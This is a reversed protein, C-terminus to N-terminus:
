VLLHTLVEPMFLWELQSLGQVWLQKISLTHLIYNFYLPAESVSSVNELMLPAKLRSLQSSPQDTIGGM